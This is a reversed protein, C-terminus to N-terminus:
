GYIRMCLGIKLLATSSQPVQTRLCHCFQFGKWNHKSELKITEWNFCWGDKLIESSQYLIGVERPFMENPAIHNDNLEAPEPKWVQIIM